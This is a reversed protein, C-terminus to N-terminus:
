HWAFISNAMILFISCIVVTTLMIPFGVVFFSKFTIQYGYQSGIVAVFENAMSGLLSGSAGYCTGFTSAWILPLLTVAVKEHYALDICLKVMIAAVAANDIFASMIASLWLVLLMGVMNQHQEDVQIIATVAQKGLWHIFGLSYVVETLVFLSALYLMTHWELRALTETLDKKDALILLLFAALISIWGLSAGPIAWPVSQLIFCSVAFFLALLSQVLLMKKRIKHNAELHALTEFYNPVPRVFSRASQRRRLEAIRLQIDFSPRMEERRKETLELQNDDLIFIRNGLFLYVLAFITIMCVVAAPLMQISFRIFSMKAVEKNTAIIANPAGGVPTVSGGVNAYLALIILVLTTRLSMAECLRIVPPSFFLVVTANDLFASTLGVVVGLLAILFWPNGKSIRYAVVALYDFFGTEAMLSMMIMNGLLLMMSEWGIWSSITAFTPKNGLVALLALGASAVLLTCLTRDALEWVIVVYFGIVLFAAYLNVYKATMPRTDVTMHLGVPYDSMSEFSIVTKAFGWDHAGTHGMSNELARIEYKGSLSFHFIKKVQRYKRIDRTLYVNWRHTRLYSRNLHFDWWELRVAVASFNSAKILHKTLYKNIAGRLFIKVTDQELKLSKFTTQNPMVTVLSENLQNTDYTLLVCTFVIWIGVLITLKIILCIYGKTTEPEGRRTGKRSVPVDDM